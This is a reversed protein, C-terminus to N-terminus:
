CKDPKPSKQTKPKPLLLSLCGAIILAGASTHLAAACHTDILAGLVNSGTVSGIRGMMLSICMAMARLNTPYIDVVIASVVTTCVGCCLLVVFLYIALLPIQIVLALIGCTGCVILVSLLTLRRGFKGIAYSIILLLSVYIVELSITHQYTSIELSEACVSEAENDITTFNATRGFELIECLCPSSSHRQTFQMTKNLIYPFWMYVGHASFFIIFQILSALFTKKIHARMFLPATQHWMSLFMTTLANKESKTDPSNMPTDEDAVLALINFDTQEGKSTKSKSNLAYIRKLADLAKDQRGVSLLYKPSEPLYFLLLACIFGPVGCALMFTRWPKYTINLFPIQFTWHQNILVWALIPLFISFLANIFAAAM